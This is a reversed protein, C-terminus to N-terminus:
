QRESHNLKLDMNQYYRLVDPFYPSIKIEGRM